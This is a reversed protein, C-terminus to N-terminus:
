SGVILGAGISFSKRWRTSPISRRLPSSVGSRMLIISDQAWEPNLTLAATRMPAASAAPRSIRARYRILAGKEIFL